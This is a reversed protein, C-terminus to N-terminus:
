VGTSPVREVSRALGNACLPARAISASPPTTSREVGKLYAAQLIEEAVSRNGVRRTLFGLFQERSALLVQVADAPPGAAGAGAHATLPQLM